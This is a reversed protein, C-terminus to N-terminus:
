VSISASARMNLAHMKLKKVILDRYTKEAVYKDFMVISTDGTTENGLGLLRNMEANSRRLEEKLEEIVYDEIVVESNSKNFM